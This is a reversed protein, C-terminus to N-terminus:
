QVLKWSGNVVQVIVLSDTGLGNHDEPTLNYIGSIGVYGRTQEIASRLADRDTGVQRMANALMMIADWAYGSHTNIPYQSDYQYVDRYLHIFEQIVAKQPDTDPLQDAVMLKTSPMLSGEAAEGALEVYKPDPQGHCQFLPITMALQKVNKAVRAGAPGITWCILVQAPGSKIKVLQATMDTDSVGFAEEAVIEIGYEPALRKLWGLGDRGFGDTAHLLAVKTWGKEKLYGYIKRVAVSTRQPTKFTWTFPGFKGGAIVPDGGVTMITPIKAKETYAKVAMGTGTRTPGILATVQDKEVLRKAVMLAKTPDGETDGIVLELPRGNIGGEKNIKDVVMEAVLKTPTGISSAPGSLDFFAGIKIPEMAWAPSFGLCIAVLVAAAATLAKRASGREKM